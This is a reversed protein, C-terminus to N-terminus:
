VPSDAEVLLILGGARDYVFRVNLKETPYYVNIQLTTDSDKASHLIKEPLTHKWEHTHM